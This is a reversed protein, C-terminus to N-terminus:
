APSTHPPHQEQLISISSPKALLVQSSVQSSSSSTPSPQRIQLESSPFIMVTGAIPSNLILSVSILFSMKIKLNHLVTRPALLRSARESILSEIAPSSTDPRGPALSTCVSGELRQSGKWEFSDVSPSGRSLHRNANIQYILLALRLSIAAWREGGMIVRPLQM